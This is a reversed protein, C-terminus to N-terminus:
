LSELKWSTAALPHEFVFLRGGKIQEMCMDVALQVMDAAKKWEDPRRVQPDGTLYQLMSFMSCPPSCVLLGPKDRKLMRMAKQKTRECQLNWVQGIVPDKVIWELSWGGALGRKRARECIRPPSFIEAVAFRSEQGKGRTERMKQLGGMDEDEFREKKRTLTNIGSNIDMNVDEPGVVEADDTARSQGPRNIEEEDEEEVRGRKRMERDEDM